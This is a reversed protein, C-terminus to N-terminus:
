SPDPTVLQQRLRTRGPRDFLWITQAVWFAAANKLAEYRRKDGTACIRAYPDRMKGSPRRIVACAPSSSVESAPGNATARNDPSAAKSPGM